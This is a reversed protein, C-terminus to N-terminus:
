KYYIEIFMTLVKNYTIMILYETNSIAVDLAINLIKVLSARKHKYKM